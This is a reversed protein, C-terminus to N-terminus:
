NKGCLFRLLRLRRELYNPSKYTLHELIDSGTVSEFKKSFGDSIKSGKAMTFSTNFIVKLKPNKEHMMSYADIGDYVTNEGNVTRFGGIYLDLVALDFKFNSDAELFVKLTFVADSGVAEFINYNDIKVSDLMMITEDVDDVMELLTTNDKGSALMEIDTKTISVLEPDDDLIVLNLKDPSYSIPFKMGEVSKYDWSGDVSTPLMDKNLNNSVQKKGFVADRIRMLTESFM